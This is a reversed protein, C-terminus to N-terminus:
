YVQPTGQYTCLQSLPVDPFPSPVVGSHLLGRHVPHVDGRGEACLGQLVDQDGGAGGGAHQGETHRGFLMCLCGM